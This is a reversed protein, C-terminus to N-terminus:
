RLNQTANEKIRHTTYKTIFNIFYLSQNKGDNPRSTFGADRRSPSAVLLDFNLKYPTPAYHPPKICLKNLNNEDIKYGLTAGASSFLAFQEKNSDCLHRIQESATM